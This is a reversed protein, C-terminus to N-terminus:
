LNDGKRLQGFFVNIVHTDGGLAQGLVFQIPNELNEVGKLRTWLGKEGDKLWEPELENFVSSEDIVELYHHFIDPLLYATNSRRLENVSPSM